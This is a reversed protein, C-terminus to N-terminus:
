KEIWFCNSDNQFLCLCKTQLPRANDARIVVRQTTDRLCEWIFTQTKAISLSEAVDGQIDGDKRCSRRPGASVRIGYPGASMFTADGVLRRPGCYM